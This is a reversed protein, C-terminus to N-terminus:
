RGGKKIHQNKFDGNTRRIARRERLSAPHTSSVRGQSKSSPANQSAMRKAMTADSMFSTMMNQMKTRLGPVIVADGAMLGEYGAKAVDAPSQLNGERYLRTHEMKAKHFFDTDTANAQLASVTVGTGKVEESLAESFSLVFAKTAGYVSFLPAPIKSLVSAVQLIKGFGRDIMPPLFFKTLSVLSTINLNIIDLERSLDTEAFAGWQGQGANNVLVDIELGSRTCEEYILKASDPDFLNSAIIHTQIAPNEAELEAAALILNETYRAVLVLDYGERAFIRALEYGIGSTAGTILAHPKNSKM